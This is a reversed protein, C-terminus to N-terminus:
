IRSSNHSQHEFGCNKTLLDNVNKSKSKSEKTGLVSGDVSRPSEKSSNINMIYKRFKQFLAGQLPKTFFDAIMELMSCHKVNIEGKNVLSKAFFFRINIHRTRKGSFEQGNNELLMASLNDQNISLPSINYGQEWIKKDM